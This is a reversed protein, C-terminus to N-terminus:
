NEQLRSYDVGDMKVPPIATTVIEGGDIKVVEGDHRSPQFLLEKGTGWHSGAQYGVGLPVNFELGYLVDLAEYVWWLFAWKSIEHLEEAEHKPNEAVVSDHVTNVLYGEMKKAKMIHWIAIIALPVIEGTALNQVVYNCISPFDRCYGTSTINASPYHFTIGSAHTIKKDRLVIRQWKEQAKTLGAYKERFAKYYNEQDEKTYGIGKGDGFQGGYVPKFTEPKALTRWDAGKPADKKQEGVEEVTCQHLM